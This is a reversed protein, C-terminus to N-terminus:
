ENWLQELRKAVEYTSDSKLLGECRHKFMSMLQHTVRSTEAPTCHTFALIRKIDDEM